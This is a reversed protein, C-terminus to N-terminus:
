IDMYKVDKSAFHFSARLKHTAFFANDIHLRSVNM